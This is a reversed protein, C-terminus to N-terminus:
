AAEIGKIILNKGAEFRAPDDFVRAWMALGQLSALYSRALAKPTGQFAYAGGERGELFAQELFREADEFFGRVQFQMAEDITELESALMACLCLKNQDKLVEGLHDAFRRVRKAPDRVETSLKALQASFQARYRIILAEGLKGKSAFHYHISATKIGLKDAIDRYSFANFGRRQCLAQATDLIDQATSSNM